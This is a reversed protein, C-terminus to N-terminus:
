ASEEGVVGDLGAEEAAAFLGLGDDVHEVYRIRKAAGLTEKLFAKRHLLPRSRLDERNLELLVSRSTAAPQKRSAAQISIPKRLRSPRVLEGFQPRGEANLLYKNTAAETEFVKDDYLRASRSGLDPISAADVIVAGLRELDAIARDM